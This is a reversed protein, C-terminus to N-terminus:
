SSANRSRLFNILGTVAFLAAGGINTYTGIETGAIAVDPSLLLAAAVLMGIRVVVKIPAFLFGAIGAALAIIGVVAAAVALFVALLSLRQDEFLVRKETGIVKGSADKKPAERAPDFDVIGLHLPEDEDDENAVTVKWRGPRLAVSFNGADSSISTLEAASGDKPAFTMTRRAVPKGFRSLRGGVPGLDGSSSTEVKLSEITPKESLILLEPRYVFMFPLTFGVLAFRFAALGTRMIPAEALSASAYAALAVPPTVMSMMGFYFIFLHAALPPVGLRNLVPGILTAMLLYCVASPLGMGLVISCVMIAILALFLSHEALPVVANPFATGVGTLSVVGIVIGVCGSAAVLAVGGRASKMFAEGVMPRWAPHLLALLLLLVVGPVASVTWTDWATLSLNSEARLITELFGIFANWWPASMAAAIDSSFVRFLTVVGAIGFFAALATVRNRRSIELRPSVITLVLILELSYSVAAFPTKGILLVAILTGLAGFFVFGEYKPLPVTESTQQAQGTGVLRAYFHVILIISLYYLIAPVIAAKMIQVFTVNDILELMMYAGAGMVPPVLAGGSAAAATIGGAIHPRFGANRMMPITFTGTTVANAVASGSLSGMLGSALVSVKAPGGPSRGFIRQAFDIIFKTAGSMELFAGFVVFLFVYTFMVRMAVGFIGGTGLFSEEAIRNIDKGKHFFAWEPLQAGYYAYLLFAGALIPLAWGISRRTAEVVLLTGIIAMAHDTHTFRADRSALDTGHWVLYGCCVVAAICLLFDLLRLATNRELRKSLPYMLFSLLLGLMCFLALQSHPPFMAYNVEYLTYLSIAVAFAPVLFRRVREVM